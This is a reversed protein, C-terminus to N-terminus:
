PRRPSPAPVNYQIDVLSFQIYDYPEGGAPHSRGEGRASVTSRVSPGTTAFRLRGACRHSRSELSGVLRDDSVFDVLEGADNFTLVAEVGIGAHTVQRLGPAARGVRWEIRPDVLTAPAFVCM